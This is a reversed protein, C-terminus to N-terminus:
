KGYAKISNSVKDKGDNVMINSEKMEKLPDKNDTGNNLGYGFQEFNSSFANVIALSKVTNSYHFNLPYQGTSFTYAGVISKFFNDGVIEVRISGNWLTDKAPIVTNIAWTQGDYFNVTVKFQDEMERIKRAVVPWPVYSINKKHDIIETDIEHCPSRLWEILTKEM